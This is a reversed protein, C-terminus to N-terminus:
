PEYYRMIFPKRGAQGRYTEAPYGIAVIAMIMENAPIGLSSQIKPDRKFAEVAMGILCTGLGMSHAALLLNQTALLADEKPLSAGPASGIIIAAPAGYFLRDRGLKRWEELTQRVIEYYERYYRDLEPKGILKMINRLLPNKAIQNLRTYFDGVKEGLAQVAARTPLITFTWKQCNTASPATIAIKVLDELITKEVPMEQYNRCSRRSGMLRVLQPTDFEGPPLWRQDAEFSSFRALSEEIGEVTIAKVPCVAACHGCNLSRDGTLAAVGQEMSITELPCVRVCEGCGICLDGDIKTTVAGLSTM